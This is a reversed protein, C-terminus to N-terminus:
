FTVDRSIDIHHFGLIYIRFAKSVEYYGVFIRKKEYPDLKTRKKKLIHVYVPFGFINLHRVEPKKRTYLEKPTKFGLDSHSLINQVYVTTRTAEDWIHMPLNQDHVMTKVAEM